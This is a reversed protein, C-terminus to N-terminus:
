INLYNHKEKKIKEHLELTEKESLCVIKIQKKIVGEKQKAYPIINIKWFIENLDIKESVYAIKTKTSIYIEGCKPSFNKNIKKKIVKLTGKNISQNWALDIDKM